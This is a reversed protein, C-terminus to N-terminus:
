VIGKAAAFGGGKLLEGGKQRPLGQGGVAFRSVQDVVLQLLLAVLQGVPHRFVQLRRHPLRNLQQGILPHAIASAALAGDGGDVGTLQGEVVLLQIAGLPDGGFLQAM